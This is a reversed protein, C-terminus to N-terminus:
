VDLADLDDLSAKSKTTAKPTKAPKKAPAKTPAKSTQDDFTISISEEGIKKSVGPVDSGNQAYHDILSKAARTDLSEKIKVVDSKHGEKDFFAILTSEDDINWDDKAARRSVKGIAPFQLTKQDPEHTRMTNLIISRLRAVRCENGGIEADIQEMRHKKLGKLFEVKNTLDKIMMLADEIEYASNLCYSSDTNDDSVVEALERKTEIDVM